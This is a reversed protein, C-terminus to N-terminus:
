QDRCAQCDRAAHGPAHVPWRGPNPCIEAVPVLVWRSLVAAVAESVYVVPSGWQVEADVTDKLLETLQEEQTQEPM